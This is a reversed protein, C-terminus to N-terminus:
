FFSTNIIGNTNPDVSRGYSRGANAGGGVGPLLNWKSKQYGQGAIQVSLDAQHIELNNKIAYTICENLSWREQSNGQINLLLLILFVFYKTTRNVRTSTTKFLYFTFSHTKLYIHFLCISIVECEGRNTDKCQINSDGSLQKM